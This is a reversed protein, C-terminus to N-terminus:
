KVVTFTLTQPQSRQGGTNTAAITLTYAGPALKSTRTIRGQFGVTNPGAHATFRLTGAAVTRTCAPEHRNGHTQAVCRGNLTRGPLQRAFTFSVHAQENLTISFSTGVPPRTKAFTPLANAERWTAHSQTAGTVSPPTPPPAASSASVVTITVIRTSQSGDNDTVMAALPFSGAESPTGAIVGSHADISLGPPLGGASWIIPAIGGTAGLAGSYPSGVQGEPLSASTIAPPGVIAPPVVVTYSVSASGTFGDSSTATVTFTHAGSAGTDLASGSARGFQDLCATLGPGGSGETCFFSSYVTQGEDYIGGAIPTSISVSPPSITWSITILPIGTTDQAFLTGPPGFSSGGGGGGGASCGAGGGGGGGYYGGGGGGGSEDGGVGGGGPAGSAPAAQGSDSPPTGCGTAAAGGTSRTGGAGGANVFGIPSGGSAGNAGAAGGAAGQTAPPAPPGGGTTPGGGGGGGGGGAVLLRAALTQSDGPCGSGCPVTRVDSAGGGGGGTGSAGLATNTGSNAGGNWGGAGYPGGYASGTIGLSGSGGVDVYLLEGPTVSLTGNVQAGDAGSGGNPPFYEVDNSSWHAGDGGPAGVAVVAISSIGAPVTFSDEGTTMYTCTFTTGSLGRSPTGATGCTQGTAASPAATLVIYIGVAAGVAAFRLMSRLLDRGSALAPMRM